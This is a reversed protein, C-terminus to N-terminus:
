KRKVGRVVKGAGKTGLFISAAAGVAVGVCGVVERVPQWHYSRENKKNEITIGEVKGERTANETLTEAYIKAGEMGILYRQDDKLAIDADALLRETNANYWDIAVRKEELSLKSSELWKTFEFTKEKLDQARADIDLKAWGQLVDQNMKECRSEIEAIEYGIKDAQAKNLTEKSRNVDIEVGLLDYKKSRMLTESITQATDLEAAAKDRHARALTSIVNMGGEIAAGLPNTQGPLSAREYGLAQASQMAQASSGDLGYYMPNLGAEQMRKVQEAPTNYENSRNWQELTWANQKELMQENWDRQIAAQKEEWKRQEKAGFYSAAAGALSGANNLVSQGVAAGVAALSM